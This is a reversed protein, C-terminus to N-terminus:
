EEIPKSDYIEGIIELMEKKQIGAQRFLELMMLILANHLEKFHNSYHEPIADVLIDILDTTLRKEEDTPMGIHKSKM